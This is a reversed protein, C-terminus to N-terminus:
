ISDNDSSYVPEYVESIPSGNHLRAYDDDSDTDSDEDTENDSDEDFNLYSRIETEVIHELLDMLDNRNYYNTSVQRFGLLIRLYAVDYEMIRMHIQELIDNFNVAGLGINLDGHMLRVFTGRRTQEAIGTVEEDRRRLEEDVVGIDMNHHTLLLSVLDSISNM